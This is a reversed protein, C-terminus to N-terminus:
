HAPILHAGRRKGQRLATRRRLAATRANAAIHAGWNWCSLRGGRTHITLARCSEAHEIDANETRQM